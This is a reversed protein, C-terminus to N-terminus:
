KGEHVAPFKIIFTTGEGVRSQIDISGDYDKVIGYSISVGLGTGKGVDKTTFFPEFIQGLVEAGMGVGTDSVTVVVQGQDRASKITLVKQADKFAPQNSKEDMADVANTVLNIFVQELRNHDAMIFPLNPDLELKLQVEHVRLQHGLVKFVDRLPDNINVRTRVIDSQRAFDRMHQIIGAARQVNSSIDQAMSRLDDEGIVQGRNIMKLFFDACVQIVNLPQNIEHAIGAAMQGLTTMKSAQVLQTEKEVSETIDTTSAIVVDSEGYKAPSININVFFPRQGKRYHKKKTFLMSQDRGLRRLGGALEEDEQDGLNLFPVGLLEKRSYGYSDQARQNIDLIRFERCDLIFIPNPDSNFLTRYKEESKIYQEQLMANEIAVGIRNGILELVHKQDSNYQKPRRSGIRIVGFTEKEKTSIPIYALSVLKQEELFAIEDSCGEPLDQYITFENSQAVKYIISTEDVVKVKKCAEESLGYGYRLHFRGDKELLYICVGDADTFSKVEEIAKIIGDESDTTAGLVNYISCLTSLERTRKEREEEAKHDETKDWLTEIAGIIRGTPAKIPAATFWCWKGSQGLNPFFGEAEYAGEILASKRWTTGYLKRIEEDPIQDLIVDAMTPRRNRYFPAWQNSSGVMDEATYGSLREMAKNWYTVMHSENIVFTPMTSGQIIQTMTKESEALARATETLLRTQRDREQEARKDETKDWLTEIAGVIAGDPAKIPAATFWCWKGEDGLKPFFGEAEYAEEILASRRWQTGYFAKIEAEGFQDLIVDAMTPREKSYFPMWQDCTGVMQSASFGTLREMAKNWHTVRHEKNIVFTPITSGEIIQSLTREGEILEKEIELYRINRRKVVHLLRDAFAEFMAEIEPTIGTIDKIERLANRKEREIQLSSWLGRAETHDILKIGAPKTKNVIEWLTADDTLEVLIQLDPLRYLDRYDQTTFIGMERAYCLGEAQNNIDAVGLVNPSRDLFTKDFLYKLFVKCFRGGGIIAINADLLNEVVTAEGIINRNAATRAEAADGNGPPRRTATAATDAATEPFWFYRFNRTRRWGTPFVV